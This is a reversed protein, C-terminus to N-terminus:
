RCHHIHSQSLFQKIVRATEQPYSYNPSHSGRPIVVTHANPMAQALEQVWSEPAIPDREGRVLLVPLQVQAAKVEPQDALAYNLTHWLTRLGARGFDWGVIPILWPSELREALFLRISQRLRTRAVRDISPGVLILRWALHPRRALLDIAIQAGLSHGMVVPRDPNVALLWEGLADALGTIDLPRAPRSSGGFGPLDVTYVHFHPCLEKALPVMYRGSMGYGHVLVISTADSAADSLWARTFMSGSPTRVIQTEPGAGCQM